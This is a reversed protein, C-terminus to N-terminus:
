LGPTSSLAVDVGRVFDGAKEGILRLDRCNQIREIAL